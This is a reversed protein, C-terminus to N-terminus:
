IDSISVDIGTASVSTHAVVNSVRPATQSLGADGSQGATASSEFDPPLRSSSVWAHADSSRRFEYEAGPSRLVEHQRAFIRRSAEKSKFKVATAHSALAARNSAKSKFADPWVEISAFQKTDEDFVLNRFRSFFRRAVTAQEASPLASWTDLFKLDLEDFDPRSLKKPQNQLPLLFPSDSSSASCLRKPMIGRKGRAEFSERMIKRFQCPM